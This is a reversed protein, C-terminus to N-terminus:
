ATLLKEINKSYSDYSFQEKLVHKSQTIQEKYLAFDSHLYRIVSPVDQPEAYVAAKGFVSKFHPPLIVLTGSALSYLITRGFTLFTIPHQYFVIYDLLYLFDPVHIVDKK